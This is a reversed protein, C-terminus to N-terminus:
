ADNREKGQPALGALWATLSRLLDDAEGHILITKIRSKNGSIITLGTKPLRWSKALLAILARNARDEAPPATVSVELAPGDSSDVIGRIRDQAAGPKIRIRVALGGGRAPPV